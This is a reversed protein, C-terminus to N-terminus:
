LVTFQSPNNPLSYFSSYLVKVHAIKEERKKGGANEERGSIPFTFLRVPLALMMLGLDSKQFNLSEYNIRSVRCYTVRRINQLGILAARLAEQSAERYGEPICDCHNYQCKYNHRSIFAEQSAKENQEKEYHRRLDCSAVLM